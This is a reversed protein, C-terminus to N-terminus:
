VFLTARQIPRLGLDGKARPHRQVELVDVLLAASRNGPTKRLGTSYTHTIGCQLLRTLALRM